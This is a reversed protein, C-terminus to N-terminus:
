TEAGLSGPPENYVMIHKEFIEPLLSLALEKGLMKADKLAEQLIEVSLCEIAQTAVPAYSLHWPEPFMGGQFTGYPRFFGFRGMHQDLWQHLAFFLGGPAVEEPLLKLQYGEPMVAQDYVDIETGWQHRSGGPLSSWDLIHWLIEEETLSGFDRVKGEEDYLPKKGSFKQNWIRLQMSFGRFSSFPMLVFGDEAAAAKMALFAEVAEPHAAFRPDDVQEVHSRVRGTVELPNFM